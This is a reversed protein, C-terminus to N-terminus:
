SLSAREEDAFIRGQVSEEVVNRNRFALMPSRQEYRMAHASQPTILFVGGELIDRRGIDHAQEIADHRHPLLFAHNLLRPLHLWSRKIRHLSQLTPM